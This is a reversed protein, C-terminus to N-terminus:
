PLDTKRVDAIKGQGLRVHEVNLGVILRDETLPNVQSHSALNKATGRTPVSEKQCSQSVVTEANALILPVPDNPWKDPDDHILINRVNSLDIVATM